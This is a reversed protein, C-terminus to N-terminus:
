RSEFISCLLNTTDYECYKEYSEMYDNWANAVAVGSAICSNLEKKCQSCDSNSSFMANLIIFAIFSYVVIMYWKSWINQEIKKTM